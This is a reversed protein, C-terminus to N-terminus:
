LYGPTTRQGQSHYLFELIPVRDRYPLLSERNTNMKFQHFPIRHMKNDGDRERKIRHWNKKSAFRFPSYLCCFYHMTKRKM